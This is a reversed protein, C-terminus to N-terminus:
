ADYRRPLTDELAAALAEFDADTAFLHRPVLVRQADGCWLALTDRKEGLRRLEKVASWPV